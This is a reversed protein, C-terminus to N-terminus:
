TTALHTIVGLRMPWPLAMCAQLIQICVLDHLNSEHVTHALSRLCFDTPCEDRGEIYLNPQPLLQAPCSALHGSLESVNADFVSMFKRPAECQITARLHPWTGTCYNYTMHLM